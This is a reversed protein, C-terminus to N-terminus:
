KLKGMYGKLILLFLFSTILTLEHLETLEAIICLISIIIVIDNTIVNIDLDIIIIIKRSLVFNLITQSFIVINKLRRTEIM